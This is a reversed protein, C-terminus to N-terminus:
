FMLTLHTWKIYKIHTNSLSCHRVKRSQYHFSNSTWGLKHGAKRPGLCLLTFDRGAEVEFATPGFGINELRIETGNRYPSKESSYVEFEQESTVMSLGRHRLHLGRSSRMLLGFILLVSSVSKLSMGKFCVFFNNTAFAFLKTLLM